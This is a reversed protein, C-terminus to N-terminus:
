EHDRADRRDSREVDDLHRESPGLQPWRDGATHSITTSRRPWRMPACAFRMTSGTSQHRKRAGVGLAIAGKEIHAHTHETIYVRLAPLDTRGGMGRERIDLDLSERAAALATYGSISATDYIIGHFTEPLGSCRGCGALRSTKSNRQPPRRAGRWRTRM